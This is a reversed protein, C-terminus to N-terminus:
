LRAYRFLYEDLFFVFADVFVVTESQLHRWRKHRLQVM